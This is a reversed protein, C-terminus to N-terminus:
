GLAPLRGHSRQRLGLLHELLLPLLAPTECAVKSRCAPGDRRQLRLDLRRCGRVCSVDLTPM